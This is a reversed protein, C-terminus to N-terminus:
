TFLYEMRFVNVFSGGSLTESALHPYNIQEILEKYVDHESPDIELMAMADSLSFKMKKTVKIM